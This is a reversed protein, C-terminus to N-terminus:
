TEHLAQDVEYSQSFFVALVHTVNPSEIYLDAPSM